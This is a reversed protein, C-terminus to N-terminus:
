ILLRPKGFRASHKQESRQDDKRLEPQLADVLSGKGKCSGRLARILARGSLHDLSAVDAGPSDGREGAKAIRSTRTAKNGSKDSKLVDVEAGNYAFM